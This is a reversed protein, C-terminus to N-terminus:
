DVYNRDLIQNVPLSSNSAPLTYNRITFPIYGAKYVCIDVNGGISFGYSYTTGSNSDINIRETSTGANLIVIDSGSVLGTLTLTISNNVVTSSGSGNRVTPTGGGSINLTVLGGSNNYICENGTTGDTSAYGTFTNGSFSYTGPTTLQIAHGTGASAFDCSTINGPNNSLVAVTNYSRTILSSDITASNQTILGCRRFTTGVISSNSKFIFTGMDTFTCGDINVDADDVVEFDGRSIPASGTISLTPASISISTLDM